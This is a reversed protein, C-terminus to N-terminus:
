KGLPHFIEPERRIQCDAYLRQATEHIKPLTIIRAGTPCNRICAMCWICNDPETQPLDNVMEICHTPCAAVCNGCGTCISSDVDTASVFPGSPVERYPRNGPVEPMSISSPDTEALLQQLQRGFQEAQEIDKRDPRNAAIPQGASSFSHQGIYAAAGVVLFGQAACLDCLELLADQYARNGYVVVAVAPTSNGELSQFNRAALGPLRGRYVPMGIVALDDESFAPLPSPAARTIDLLNEVPRGIGRGIAQIVSRTTGTPSFFISHTTKKNM